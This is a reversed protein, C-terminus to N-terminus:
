RVLKRQALSFLRMPTTKLSLLRHLIKPVDEHVNGIAELANEADSLGRWHVRVSLGDATEQLAM